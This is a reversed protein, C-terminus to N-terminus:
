EPAVVEKGLRAAVALCLERIAERQNWSGNRLSLPHRMLRIALQEWREALDQGLTPPIGQIATSLEGFGRVFGDNIQDANDIAGRARELAAEASLYMGAQIPPPAKQETAAKSVSRM